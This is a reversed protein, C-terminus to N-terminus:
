STAAVSGDVLHITAPVIAVSSFLRSAAPILSPETIWMVTGCVDAAAVGAFFADGFFGEVAFFAAVDVVVM